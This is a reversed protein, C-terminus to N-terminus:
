CFVQWSIYCRHLVVLSQSSIGDSPSIVSSSGTSSLSIMGDCSSGKSNNDDKSSTTGSNRTSGGSVLIEVGVGSWSDTDSAGPYEVGSGAVIELDFFIFGLDLVTDCSVALTLGLDQFLFAISVM